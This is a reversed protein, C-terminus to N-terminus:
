VAHTIPRPHFPCCRSFSLIVAVLGVGFSGDFRVYFVDDTIVDCNGELALEAIGLAFDALGNFASHFALQAGPAVDHVIQMMARGEDSGGIASGFCGAIDSLVTIGGVSPLDGSLIDDAANTFASPNCDFSDSLVGVKIGSGDLGLETKVDDTKMAADGESTVLGASTKPIAPNILRVQSKAAISTLQDVPVFGSCIHKYCRTPEFGMAELESTDPDDSAFIIDVLVKDNDRTNLINGPSSGVDDRGNLLAVADGLFPGLKPEKDLITQLSRRHKHFSTGKGENVLTEASASLFMAVFAVAQVLGSTSLKM